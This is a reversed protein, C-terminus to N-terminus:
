DKAKKFSMKNTGPLTIEITDGLIKGIIIGGSKSSLWIESDKIDWRFSVEDESVRWVAIGKEMLELQSGAYKSAKELTIYLGEYVDKQGYCSPFAVILYIVLPVLYNWKTTGPSM